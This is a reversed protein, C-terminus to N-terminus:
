FVALAMVLLARILTLLLSFPFLSQVLLPLPPNPPAPQPLLNPTLVGLNYIALFLPIIMYVFACGSWSGCIRVNLFAHLLSDLPM